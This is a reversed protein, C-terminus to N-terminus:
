ISWLTETFLNPCRTNLPLFILKDSQNKLSLIGLVFNRLLFLIKFMEEPIGCPLTVLNLINTIRPFTESKLVLKSSDHRQGKLCAM